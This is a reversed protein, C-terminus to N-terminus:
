VGGRGVVSNYSRAGRTRLSSTPPEIGGPEVLGFGGHRRRKRRCARYAGHSNKPLEDALEDTDQHVNLMHETSISRPEARWLTCARHLARYQSHQISAPPLGNCGRNEAGARSRLRASCHRQGHEHGYDHYAGAAKASHEDAISVANVRTLVHRLSM